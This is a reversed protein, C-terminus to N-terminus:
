FYTYRLVERLEPPFGMLPPLVPSFHLLIMYSPLAPWINSASIYKLISGLARAKFLIKQSKFPTATTLWHQMLGMRHGGWKDRRCTCNHDFPFPPSLPYSSVLIYNCKSLLLEGKFAIIWQSIHWYYHTSLLAATFFFVVLHQYNSFFNITLHVVAIFTNASKQTCLWM